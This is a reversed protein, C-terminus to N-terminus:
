VLVDRMGLGLATAFHVSEQIGIPAAADSGPPLLNVWPTGRQVHVDDFYQLFASDLGPLNTGGGTLLLENIKNEEGLGTYFEVIGHIEAVLGLLEGRLREGMGPFKKEVEFDIPGEIFANQEEVSLVSTLDSAGRQLSATFRTTGKDHVIVNTNSGGLDVVLLGKRLRLEPSILARIIAQSELELAAVDLGLSGLADKLPDVVRREAAGVLVEQMAKNKSRRGSEIPQWDVYVNDIGFPIHQAVEWRVAEGIEEREMKPIEIVRLFSETEPISAIVPIKTKPSLKCMGLAERLAEQIVEMNKIEGKEVVGTPVDHWCHSVLSRKGRGTAVNAIKISQKSIDIGLM